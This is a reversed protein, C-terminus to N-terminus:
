SEDWGEDDLDIKEVPSQKGDAPVQTALVGAAAHMLSSAAVALHAKVEPSTTRVASIVQCVPCYRCDQGDTAIHENINHMADTVAQAAGAASGAASGATGAGQEKAWGSLAVFLKAAEEGVSGIPEGNPGQRPDGGGGPTGGTEDAM